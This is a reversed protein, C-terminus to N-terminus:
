TSMKCVEFRLLKDAINQNQQDKKYRFELIQKNWVKKIIKDLAMLNHKSQLNVPKNKFSKLFQFNTIILAMFYPITCNFLTKYKLNFKFKTHYLFRMQITQNLDDSNKNKGKNNDNNNFM